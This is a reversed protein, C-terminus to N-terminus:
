RWLVQCFSCNVLVTLQCKASERGIHWQSVIPPVCTAIQLCAQSVVHHIYLQSNVELGLSLQFVWQAKVVETEMGVARERALLEDCHNM